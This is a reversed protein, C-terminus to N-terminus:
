ICRYHKTLENPNSKFLADACGQATMNDYKKTMKTSNKYYILTNYLNTHIMTIVFSTM